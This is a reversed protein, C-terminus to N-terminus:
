VFSKAMFISTGPLGKGAVVQFGLGRYFAQARANRPHVDLYM